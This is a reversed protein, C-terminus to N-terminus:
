LSFIRSYGVAPINHYRNQNSPHYEPDDLAKLKCTTTTPQQERQTHKHNDEETKSKTNGTEHQSSPLPSKYMIHPTNGKILRGSLNIKREARSVFFGGANTNYGFQKGETAIQKERNTEYLYGNFPYEAVTPIEWVFKCLAKHSHENTRKGQDHLYPNLITHPLFNMEVCPCARCMNM